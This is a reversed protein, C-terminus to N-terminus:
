SLTINTGLKLPLSIRPRASKLGYQNIASHQIHIPSFLTPNKAATMMAFMLEFQFKSDIHEQHHTVWVPHLTYEMMAQNVSNSHAIDQILSLKM